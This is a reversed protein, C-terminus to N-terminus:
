SLCEAAPGSSFPWLSSTSLTLSLVSFKKKLPFHRISLLQPVELVLPFSDNIISFDQSFSCITEPFISLVWKLSLIEGHSHHPLSPVWCASIAPSVLPAAPLSLPLLVWEQTVPATYFYGWTLPCAVGTWTLDKGVHASAGSQYACVMRINKLYQHEYTSGYVYAVHPACVFYLAAGAGLPLILHQPFM